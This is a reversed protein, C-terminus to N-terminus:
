PLTASLPIRQKIQYRIQKQMHRLPHQRLDASNPCSAGIRAFAVPLNELSGCLLRVYIPCHLNLTLLAMPPLDELDQTLQRRGTCRRLGQKIVGFRRELRNNTRDVIFAQTGDLTRVYPHNFLYERHRELHKLILAHPGRPARSAPRRLRRKFDELQSRITERVALEAEPLLPQQPRLREDGEFRLIQRLEEFLVWRQQLNQARREIEPDAGVMQQLEFLQGLAESVPGSWPRDFWADAEQPLRRFRHYLDLIDVRFPFRLHRRGEGAQLWYVFAALTADSPPEGPATPRLARGLMGLAQTVRLIKFRSRLSRAPQQLLGRGVDAVFHFHCIGDPIGRERLRAVSTKCAKSMDRVVAVPPGFRAATREIVPAILEERETDIRGVDLIWDHRGEMCVFLGGRGTENTADIHLAYGGQQEFAGRLAPSRHHHLAALHHVFRDALASVTGGTSVDIGFDTRLGEQIEVRQQFRLFRRLGVEVIVDWGYRQGAPALAGLTGKAVCIPEEHLRCHFSRERVIRSGGALTVLQRVRTKRVQTPEGCQPCRPRDQRLDTVADLTREIRAPDWGGALALCRFTSM